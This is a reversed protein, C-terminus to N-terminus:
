QGAAMVLKPTQLHQRHDFGDLFVKLADFALPHSILYGQVLDCGMVRLLSLAMPDDVGEATVEMDLAHALDISSRVLLPDRHSEVLGSVFMQDIKLEHAPLQKLYSLSSLGSGYDDIAIKVGAAALMHLNALAGTPDGIVATETVEFGIRTRAEGLAALTRRAFDPDSLLVGSINVYISLDHGAEALRAQDAVARALVWDTLDRIAGTSEALRILREISVPGGERDPWRLLAEASDITNTRSRLKPQYLLRLEGSEIARRLGRILAVEDCGEEADAEDAFCLVARSTQATALAAAAHDLVEERTIGEVAEAVGIQISLDFTVGDVTIRESLSAILAELLDRAAEAHPAAFAFEITTRGTRGIGCAPLAAAIRDGLHSLVRNALRFGIDRRLTAFRHVELIGVYAGPHCVDPPLERLGAFWPADPGRAADPACPPDANVPSSSLKV